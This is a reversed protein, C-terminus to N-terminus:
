LPHIVVSVIKEYQWQIHTKNSCNHLVHDCIVDAIIFLLAVIPLFSIDIDVVYDILPM